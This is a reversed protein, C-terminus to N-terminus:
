ITAASAWNREMELPRPGDLLASGTSIDTGSQSGSSRVRELIQRRRRAAVRDWVFDAARATAEAAMLRRRAPDESMLRLADIWGAEDHADIVFGEHENRIIRGAGMPTTIVPLGCGCAEYTVQPGGEELTPFVFVDASRYLAGVDQMYDLVIVDERDLLEACLRRVLPDMEGALVLRGHVKSKIWHSLLLHAGKRLSITGVFLATLGPAKPLITSTGSLRAPDWGYSTSILKTKPVGRALLSSEVIANPCFIHDVEGLALDEEEVSSQSIPHSPALGADAYARDLILKAAGRPGNIMERFTTVGFQRLERM